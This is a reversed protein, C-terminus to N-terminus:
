SKFFVFAFESLLDKANAQENFHKYFIEMRTLRSEPESSLKLRYLGDM